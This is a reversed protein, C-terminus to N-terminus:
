YIKLSDEPLVQTPKYKLMCGLFIEFDKAQKRISIPEISFWYDEYLKFLVANFFDENELIYNRNIILKSINDLLVEEYETQGLKEQNERM